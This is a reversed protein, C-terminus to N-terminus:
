ICVCLFVILWFRECRFSMSKGGKVVKTVRSVQVVREQASCSCVMLVLEDYARTTHEARRRGSCRICVTLSTQASWCQREPLVSQQMEAVAQTFHKALFGCIGVSSEQYASGERPMRYSGM